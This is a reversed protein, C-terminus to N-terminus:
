FAPSYCCCPVRQLPGFEVVAGFCLALQYWIRMVKLMDMKSCLHFSYIEWIIERNSSLYFSVLGRAEFLTQVYRGFAYLCELVKQFSRRMIAITHQEWDRASIDWGQNVENCGRKDRSLVRYECHIEFCKVLFIKKSNSILLCVGTPFAHANILLNNRVDWGLCVKPFFLLCVPLSKSLTVSSLCLIVNVCQLYLIHILSVNGGWGDPLIKALFTLMRGVPVEHHPACWNWWIITCLLMHLSTSKGPESCLNALLESSPRLCALMWLSMRLWVQFRTIIISTM